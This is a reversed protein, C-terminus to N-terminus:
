QGPLENKMADWKRRVSTCKLTIRREVAGFSYM